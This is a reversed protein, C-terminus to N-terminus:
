VNQVEQNVVRQGVSYGQYFKTLTEESADMLMGAADVGMTCFPLEDSVHEDCGYLGIRKLANDGYEDVFMSDYVAASLGDMWPYESSEKMQNIMYSM